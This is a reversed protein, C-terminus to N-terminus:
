GKFLKVLEGVTKIKEPLNEGLISFSLQNIGSQRWKEIQDACEDPTGVIAYEEVMKATIKKTAEFISKKLADRVANVEDLNIGRHVLDKDPLYPVFNCLLSKAEEVAKERTNAVSIMTENVIEIEDLKRNAKKIGARINTLAYDIRDLPFTMLVGDSLEGALTLMKPGRAGLYIPLEKIKEKLRCNVAQLVEGEMTVTKGAYMGRLITFTERITRLPKDWMKIGLPNLPLSGGPGIGTIIRGPALQNLTAMAVATLAPHRTYPNCLASGVKMTKTAQIAVCMNVFVDTYPPAPSEDPVWLNDFGNAEIIGAIEEIRPQRLFFGLGFRFM